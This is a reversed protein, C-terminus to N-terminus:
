RLWFVICAALETRFSRSEYLKILERQEMLEPRRRKRRAWEHRRRFWGLILSDFEWALIRTFDGALDPESGAAPPAIDVLGLQYLRATVQASLLGRMFRWARRSEAPDAFGQALQQIVARLNQTDAAMRLDLDLDRIVGLVVQREMAQRWDNYFCSWDPRDLLDMWQQTLGARDNVRGLWRARPRGDEAHLFSIAIGADACALLADTDWQVNGSVVVRSVRRLPFVREAELPARVSLAPGALTIYLDQDGDLYLPKM